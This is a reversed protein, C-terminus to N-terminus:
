FSNTSYYLLKTIFASYEKAEGNFRTQEQSKWERARERKYIREFVCGVCLKKKKKNKAKGSKQTVAIYYSCLRSQISAIYIYSFLHQTFTENTGVLWGVTM